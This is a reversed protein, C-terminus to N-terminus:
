PTISSGQPRSFWRRFWSRKDRLPTVARTGHTSSPEFRAIQIWLADLRSATGVIILCPMVQVGYDGTASPDGICLWRNTNDYYIPLPERAGSLSVGPLLESDSVVRISGSIASPLELKASQWTEQPCLGYVHDVIGTSSIELQVYNYCISTFSFLQAPPVLVSALGKDGVNYIVEFLHNDKRPPLVEFRM